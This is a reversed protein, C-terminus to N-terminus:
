LEFVTRCEGCSASGEEKGLVGAEAMMHGCEARPVVCETIFLVGSLWSRHLM